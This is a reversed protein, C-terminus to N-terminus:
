LEEGSRFYHSVLWLMTKTANSLAKSKNHPILRVDHGVAEAAGGWHNASGCAEMAIFCRPLDSLMKQFQPRTLEDYLNVYGQYSAIKLHL